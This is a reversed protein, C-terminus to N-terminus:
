MGKRLRLMDANAWLYRDNSVMVLGGHADRLLRDLSFESTRQYGAIGCIELARRAIDVGTRSTSIKLTRLSALLAPDDISGADAADVARAVTELLARDQDLVAALEALRLASKPTEEPKRRSAARVYAHAKQASAEALGVWVASLFLLQAQLGGASGIMSFPVPYILDEDVVATLLFARSCTGRLGLADWDSRPELQPRRLIVQAQDGPESEPTRRATATILDAYEGYSIALAEKRLTIRGSERELACVSRSVDGGTGVESNANAVLLQEAVIERQLEQLPETTGHRALNSIEMSHMALVLASSCCHRALARVAAAMESAQLGGGGLERPVMASLLGTERFATAAEHPFRAEVDVEAAAPGAVEVGIRAALDVASETM